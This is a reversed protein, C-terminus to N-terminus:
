TQNDGHAEKTQSPTVPPLHMHDEVISVALHEKTKKHPHQDTGSATGAIFSATPTPLSGQQNSYDTGM